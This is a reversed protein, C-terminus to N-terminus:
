KCSYWWNQFGEYDNGYILCIFTSFGCGQRVGQRISMWASIDDDCRVAATQNWYLSTLLGLEAPDVDLSQLLDVLLTHNDKDFAKSYDIFCVYVDKHKEISREM